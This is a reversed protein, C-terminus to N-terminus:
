PTNELHQWLQQVEPCAQEIDDVTYYLTRGSEQVTLRKKGQEDTGFKVVRELKLEGPDAELKRQDQVEGMALIPQVVFLRFKEVVTNGDVPVDVVDSSDPDALVTYQVIQGDCLFEIPQPLVDVQLQKAKRIVTLRTVQPGLEAIMSCLRKQCALDRGNFQTILDSDQLLGESPGGAVVQRVVLGCSLDFQDLLAKPAPEAQIGLWLQRGSKRASIEDEIQTTSDDSKQGSTLVSASNSPPAATTSDTAVDAAIGGAALSRASPASDSDAQPHEGCGVTAFVAAVLSLMWTSRHGPGMVRTSCSGTAQNSAMWRLEIPQRVFGRTKLFWRAMM